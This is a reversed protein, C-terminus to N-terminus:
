ADDNEKNHRADKRLPTTLAREVTWGKAIRQILAGSPLGVRDAWDALCMTEGLYSVTHNSRRNRAQETPTAWRVNGPEYDGDNDIREVTHDPSPRKGVDAVFAEYSKRWRPCVTIGRAGYRDYSQCKPNSCRQNMSM